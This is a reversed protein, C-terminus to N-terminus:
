KEHELPRTWEPKKFLLIIYPIIALIIGGAILFTFYFTENGTTIQSPPFFGIVIAFLSGLIGIGSVIWMGLNGGPVKYARKVEPRKYRLYIAAAFMMLYMVLYLQAVMVSLIWFASSVTPMLVFVLSLLSVIVAQAIMLSVPMGHQNIKRFFPPLDGSQAAALLGKSPGATWTSMSGLAGVAILAAMIPTLWKLNYAEVFYNFAQISGSVLSIKERPVVIAIALVGLIALGLIIIASLLIARPYDKQPHKVEHAHVASMEMGTLALMVGTFFVMQNPSSLDPILNDWTLSIQLPNGQFFWSVGLLIIIIGPVFTGFIVGFSSIAGSARMGFLNAFTTAWFLLIVIILTYTTNNALEPNFVYASTAAIFSLVTPYWIVNEIWQLWIALFGARHGFAEKVWVFVGGTKPWGTALEASVLSVPIFFILAALIFFFLSSFGYESIVPWNKVGGVAAVNIMALTFVSLARPIRFKSM